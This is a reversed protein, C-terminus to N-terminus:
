EREHTAVYKVPHELVFSTAFLDTRAFGDMDRGVPVGMYYLVTPAIDMIAGRPLAGAAANTGYALLFGDPASEHTGTLDPSALLKALLRKNLATPEMGFGSVVLLLDGPALDHAAEGVIQDFYDYYQDVVSHGADAGRSEGFREPLAQSLYHHSLEALGEYRVAIFRPAFQQELELAADHYARDWRAYSLGAPEEDGPSLAPLVDTWPRDQWRDFIGRAIEAATTPDAARKDALRLPSSAAEDFRDSVLYGRAIRAPYTVPWGAIGSALGYDGLIDWVPRATLAGATLYEPRVFGQSVLAYAFCYDPLVDVPDVDDGSVRYQGRSRIGNNQPLKGTAAAAWVPEAQTPRLTALDMTAGRDLIRALNPLRGAAVRQRIFGLSAGDIAFLRVHPVFQVPAPALAAEAQRAPERALVRVFAEGPGRFWLPAGVSALYVAGFLLAVARSGRRVVSYRLVAISVIVGAAITTAWAGDRMRDISPQTLVPTFAELNAWTAAAALGAAVSGIWALLRVSLWAPRFPRWALLDRGLLVFYLGVSLYPTYFALVAGAWRLATMSPVPVQPNLQLVLVVIYVAVITGGAVANTLM